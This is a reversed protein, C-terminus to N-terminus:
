GTLIISLNSAFKVCIPIIQKASASLRLVFFLHLFVKVQKKRVAVLQQLRQQSTYHYPHVLFFPIM